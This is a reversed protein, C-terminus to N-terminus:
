KTLYNHLFNQFYYIWIDEFFNGLKVNEDCNQLLQVSILKFMNKSVKTVIWMKM